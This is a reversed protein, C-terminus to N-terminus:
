HASSGKPVYSPPRLMRWILWTATTESMPQILGIDFAAPASIAVL